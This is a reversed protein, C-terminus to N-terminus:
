VNGEYVTIFLVSKCNMVVFGSILVAANEQLLYLINTYKTCNSGGSNKNNFIENRSNHKFDETQLIFQSAM